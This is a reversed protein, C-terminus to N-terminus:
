STLIVHADLPKRSGSEGRGGLKSWRGGHDKLYSSALDTYVGSNAACLFEITDSSTISTITDVDEWFGKEMEVQTPPVSFLDLESKACM